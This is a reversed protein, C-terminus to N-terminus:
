HIQGAPEQGIFAGGAGDNARPEIAGGAIAAGGALVKDVCADALAVAATEDAAATADDLGATTDDAAATVLSAAATVLSAAAIVLSAAALSAGVVVTALLM